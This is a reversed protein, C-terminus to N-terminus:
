IEPPIEPEPAPAPAPAAAPPPPPPQSISQARAPSPASMLMPLAMAAAAVKLADRRSLRKEEAAPAIPTLMLHRGAFQDLALQVAEVNVPKGVAKSVDLALQEVSRTGDALKFTTFSILNLYHTTGHILDMVLTEDGLPRITLNGKRTQPNL